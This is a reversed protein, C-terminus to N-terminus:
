CNIGRVFEEYSIFGDMDADFYTLLHYFDEATCMVSFHTLARKFEAPSLKGDKDTDAFQFTRRHHHSPPRLCPVYMM